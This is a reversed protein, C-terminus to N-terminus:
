DDLTTGAHGTFTRYNSFIEGLREEVDAGLQGFVGNVALQVLSVLPSLSDWFHNLTTPVAFVESAVASAWDCYTDTIITVAIGRKGAAEALLKSQRSYRRTDIIVLAVATPDTLLVDVFNGAALDVLHVEDRLYQLQHALVSAVGRETQFGVCFVKRATSLREIFRNFEPTEAIEYVRVLAGIEMELGTALHHNQERAKAAFDKLRDGVLWPSNSFDDKLDAKLERFHTYGISRCFRGVTMEGIGIKTSISAATEFPLENLNALMYNAIARGAVTSNELSAQLREKVTTM